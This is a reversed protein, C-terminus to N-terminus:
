NSYRNAIKLIMKYFQFKRRIFKKGEPLNNGQYVDFLNVDKLLGKETQKAITYIQEFKVNEDLLLALDRRVEPYKPIDTFKIKTSVYKQIKDWAFDAYLVEQKIDFYKLVSKKITGFEVIVEKGVALALGEAFVDNEFPFSTVKKDLGLRSLITNIYGQILLFRIKITRKDM